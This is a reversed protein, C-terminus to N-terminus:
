LMSFKARVDMKRIVLRESKIAALISKIVIPDLIGNWTELLDFHLTFMSEHPFGGVDDRLCHVVSFCLRM